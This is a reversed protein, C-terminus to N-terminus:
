VTYINIEVAQGNRAMLWDYESKPRTIYASSTDVEISLTGTASIFDVHVIGSNTPGFQFDCTSSGSQWSFALRDIVIGKDEWNAPTLSGYKDGINNSFGVSNRGGYVAGVGMTASFGIPVKKWMGNAFTWVAKIKRWVGQVLVWLCRTKRWMGGAFVNCGAM